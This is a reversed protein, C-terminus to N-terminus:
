PREFRGSLQEIHVKYVILQVKTGVDSDKETIGHAPHDSPNRSLPMLRHILGQQLQEKESVDIIEEFRGQIIVSKWDFITRIEDVEFCVSPNNRMMRIKQGEASQGYLYSGGFVYNVPVIYTSGEAHCAIRGTVQERLLQEIQTQDLEGLM